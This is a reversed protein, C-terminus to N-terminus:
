ISEFEKVLMRTAGMGPVIGVCGAVPLFEFKANSFPPRCVLWLESDLMHEYKEPLSLDTRIGGSESPLHSVTADNSYLGIGDPRSPRLRRIGRRWPPVQTLERYRRSLRYTQGFMV